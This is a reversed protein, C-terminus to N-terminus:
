NRIPQFKAISNEPMGIAGALIRYSASESRFSAQGWRGKLSANSVTKHHTENERKNERIIAQSHTPCQLMIKRKAQGCGCQSFNESKEPSEDECGDKRTEVNPVAKATL